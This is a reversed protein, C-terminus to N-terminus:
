KIFNEEAISLNWLREFQLEMFNCVMVLVELRKADYTAYHSYNDDVTRKNKGRATPMQANLNNKVYIDIARVTTVLLYMVMKVLNLYDSQRDLTEQKLYDHLMQGLKDTTRYLIEIARVYTSIQLQAANEIISFFTDFHDFIYFADTSQLATQADSFLFEM